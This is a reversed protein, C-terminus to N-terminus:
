LRFWMFSIPYHEVSVWTDPIFMTLCNRHHSVGLLCAWFTVDFFQALDASTWVVHSKHSITRPCGRYWSHASGSVNLPPIGGVSLCVYLFVYWFQALDASIRVVHFKHSIAWCYGLNWSHASGSLKLPPTSRSLCEWITVGFNMWTLNLGFWVLGIPHQKVGDWIYDIFRYIYSYKWIPFFLLVVSHYVKTLKTAAMEFISGSRWSVM